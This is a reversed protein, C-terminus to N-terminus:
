WKFRDLSSIASSMSNTPSGSLTSSIEFLNLSISYLIWCLSNIVWVPINFLFRILTIDVPIPVSLISITILSNSAKTFISKSVRKSFLWFFDNFM